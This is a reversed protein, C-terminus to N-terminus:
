RVEVGLGWFLKWLQNMKFKIECNFNIWIAFINQLQALKFKLKAVVVYSLGFYVSTTRPEVKAVGLLSM